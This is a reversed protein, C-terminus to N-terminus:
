RMNQLTEQENEECDYHRVLLDQPGKHSSPINNDPKSFNLFLLTQFNLIKLLYM